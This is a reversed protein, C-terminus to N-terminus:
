QADNDGRRERPRLEGGDRVPKRRLELLRGEPDDPEAPVFASGPNDETLYGCIRATARRIAEPSPGDSM